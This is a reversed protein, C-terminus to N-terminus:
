EEGERGREKERAISTQERSTARRVPGVVAAVLEGALPEFTVLVPGDRAMRSRGQDAFEGLRRGLSRDVLVVPSLSGWM